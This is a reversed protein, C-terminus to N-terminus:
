KLVGIKVKKGDPSERFITDGELYTISLNMAKSELIANRAAIKGAKILGKLDGEDSFYDKKSKSKM